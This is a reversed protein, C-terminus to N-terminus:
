DASFLLLEEKFNVFLATGLKTTDIDNPITAQLMEGGRCYAVGYVYPKDPDPGHIRIDLPDTWERDRKMPAVEPDYQSELYVLIPCPDLEGGYWAHVAIIDLFNETGVQMAPVLDKFAERSGLRGVEDIVLNDAVLAFEPTSNIPSLETNLGQFGMGNLSVQQLAQAM